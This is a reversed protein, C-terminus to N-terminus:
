RLRPRRSRYQVFGAAAGDATLVYRNGTVDDSVTTEM